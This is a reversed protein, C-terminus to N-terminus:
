GLILLLLVIVLVLAVAGGSIVLVDQDGGRFKQLDPAAAERQAFGALEDARSQPVPTPTAALSAEAAPEAARACIPAAFLGLSMLLILAPIGPRLM